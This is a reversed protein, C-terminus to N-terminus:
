PFRRPLGPNGAGGCAFFSRDLQSGVARAFPPSLIAGGSCCATVTCNHWPEALQRFRKTRCATPSAPCDTATFRQAEAVLATRGHRSPRSRSLWGRSRMVPVAVAPRYSPRPRCGRPTTRERPRGRQAPVGSGAMPGHQLMVTKEVPDAAIRREHRFRWMHTRKKSWM